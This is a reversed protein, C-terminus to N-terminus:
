SRYYPEYPGKKLVMTLGFGNATYPWTFCDWWSSPHQLWQRIKYVDHCRDPALHAADPPLTDHLFMVGGEAIKLIFFQAERTVVREDHSGDLLIITPKMVVEKQYWQMFEVSTGRFVFHGPGLSQVERIDCSYLNVRAEAAHKYLLATSSGMGIEVIHGLRNKLIIPVLADLISWDFKM